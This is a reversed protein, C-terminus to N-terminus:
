VLRLRMNFKFDLALKRLSIVSVRSVDGVKQFCLLKGPNVAVRVSVFWHARNAMTFVISPLM